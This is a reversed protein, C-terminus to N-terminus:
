LASLADELARSAEEIEALARELNLIGWNSRARAAQHQALVAELQEKAERVATDDPNDALHKEASSISRLAYDARSVAEEILDASEDDMATEKILGINHDLYRISSNLMRVESDVPIVARDFDFASGETLRPPLERAAMKDREDELAGCYHIGDDCTNVVLTAHILALRSDYWTDELLEYAYDYYGQSYAAEAAEDPDDGRQSWTIIAAAALLIIGCLIIIRTWSKTKEVM